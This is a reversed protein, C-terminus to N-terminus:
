SFTCTGEIEPPAKLKAEEPSPSLVPIFLEPPPPRPPALPTQTPTHIKLQHTWLIRPFVVGEPFPPPNKPFLLILVPYIAALPFSLAGLTLTSIGTPLCPYSLFRPLGTPLHTRIPFLLDCSPYSLTPFPHSLEWSLTQSLCLPARRFLYLSVWFPSAHDRPFLYTLDLLSM